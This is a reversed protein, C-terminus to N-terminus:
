LRDCEVAKSNIKLCTFILLFIIIYHYNFIFILYINLIILFNFVLFIQLCINKFFKILLMSKFIKIKCKNKKM